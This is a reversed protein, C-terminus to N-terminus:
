NKWVLCYEVLQRVLLLPLELRQPQQYFREKRQKMEDMNQFCIPCYIESAARLM